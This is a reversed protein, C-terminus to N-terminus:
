KCKVQNLDRHIQQQVESLSVTLDDKFSDLLYIYFTNANLSITEPTRLLASSKQILKKVGKMEDTDPYRCDMPIFAVFEFKPFYRLIEDFKKEKEWPNQKREKIIDAHSGIVVVHAKKKLNTCQNQVLTMWRATSDITKREDDRQLDAVYIIIPPLTQVANELVASHSAYFVHQGAFDYCTVRGFEKTDVKHM